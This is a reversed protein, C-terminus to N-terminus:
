VHGVPIEVIFRTGKGVESEAEITGGHAQILQKAIALGLGSNTRGTRSKDGRWFRDFIFPIDEASIGSGTDKVEIRIGNEISQTILSISGDKPTHRLANSILNSLVQNLRDYDATLEQSSDAISTKLDIGLSAAQASFSTTLDHILDALLFRTPHLPLQGTEALSLTQLDNVLRALLKTEDLTNNIHEPTPEYIGDIVGELNGQIIHLPTRLEHSANAVFDKRIQETQYTETVDRVIVRTLPLKGDPNPLRASDIVWATVGRAEQDGLPSSQQPLLVKEQSPEGTKLCHTIGTTLRPDLFVETLPRDLIQRNSFLERASANAFHIRSDSDVLVFADNLADLLRDREQRESRLSQDFRDNSDISEFSAKLRTKRLLLLLYMVAMLSVISVAISIQTIMSTTSRDHLRHQSRNRDM